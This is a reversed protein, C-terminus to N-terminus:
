REGMGARRARVIAEARDAVHLKAFVNSVHNRITKPSVGLGQAIQSNSRGRALLELVERERQTLDGFPRVGADRASFYGIMRHALAPGFVVSGHAVALTARVITAADSGKLLYGRAGARIAQFVSEDDDFMTLVLVAVHPSQTTIRRTAEIGNLEPMNIDMVVVDPQVAACVAVADTGTGVEAVVEVDEASALVTTLGERFTPHDDALVVRLRTDDM